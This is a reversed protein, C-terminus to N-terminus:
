ILSSFFKFVVNHSLSISIESFHILMSDIIHKDDDDDDCYIQKLEHQPQSINTSTAIYVRIPIYKDGVPCLRCKFWKKSYNKVQKVHLKASIKYFPGISLFDGFWNLM